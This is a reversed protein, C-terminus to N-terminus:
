ISENLTRIKRRESRSWYNSSSANTNKILDNFGDLLLRRSKSDSYSDYDFEFLSFALHLVAKKKWADKYSDSDAILARIPIFIDLPHNRKGGQAGSSRLYYILLPDDIAAIHRANILTTIVFYADNAHRCNQFQIKLDNIYQTKYMKNWASLNISYLLKTKFGINHLYAYLQLNKIAIRHHIGNNLIYNCITVDAKSTIATDIMKEFMTSIFEDDADLFLIYDGRALSLGMNRAAGAGKNMNIYLHVRDDYKSISDIYEFSGDTSHDDIVILEFNRFTQNLVSSLAEKLYPMANYVTMIVTLLPVERSREKMQAPANDTKFM